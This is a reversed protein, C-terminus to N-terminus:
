QYSLTKWVWEKYVRLGRRQTMESNDTNERHHKSGKRQQRKLGTKHHWLIQRSTLFPREVFLREVFLRKLRKETDNWCKRHTKQAENRHRQVMKETIERAKGINGRLLYKGIIEFYKGAPLLSDKLSRRQSSKHREETDNWCKRYAKSAQERRREIM